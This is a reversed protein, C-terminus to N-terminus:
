EPKKMKLITLDYSDASVTHEFSEILWEGNVAKGHNSIDASCGAVFRVDLPMSMTLEASLNNLKALHSKAARSAEDKNKFQIPVEKIPTGVGATEYEILNTGENLWAAKVQAVADRKKKSWQGATVKPNDLIMVPLSDGNVGKAEDRKKIVLREHTVKFVAANDEAIRTLLNLDSEMVQNVHGLAISGVDSDIAVSFGHESAISTALDGFTVGEFSRSRVSKLESNTTIATGSIEYTGGHIDGSIDNIEFTGKDIGNILINLSKWSEPENIELNPDVLSLRMSDSTTGSNDAITISKFYKAMLTAISKGNAIIDVTNRGNDIVM